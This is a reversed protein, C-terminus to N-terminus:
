EFDVELLSRIFDRMREQHTGPWYIKRCSPCRHFETQSDRVRPPLQALVEERSVASLPENCRLCRTFPHFLDRLQFRRVVDLLQERPEEPRIAFSRTLRPNGVLARDKSLLIRDEALSQRILDEDEAAPAYAADFGLMRLHAALKGLHVDLLFRPVRLPHPRIKQVDGIEFSEFVPFLAVRDGHHLPAELSVSRGNLLALDVTGIPILLANILDSVTAVGELSCPFESYQRSPPLRDNLEAYCRVLASGSGQNNLPGGGAPRVEQVSTRDM